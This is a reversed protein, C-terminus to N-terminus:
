LAKCISHRLSSKGSTDIGNALLDLGKPTDAIEELKETTVDVLSLAEQPSYSALVQFAKLIEDEINESKSQDENKCENEINQSQTESQSAQKKNM